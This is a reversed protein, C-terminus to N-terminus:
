HPADGDNGIQEAAERLSAAIQRRTAEPQAHVSTLLERLTRRLGYVQDVLDLIVAIGEDNVGLDHKLDAILQARALDMESLTKDEQPLLWGVEIWAELVDADLRARLLFERTEIM